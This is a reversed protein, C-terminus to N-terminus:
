GNLLSATQWCRTAFPMQSSILALAQQYLNLLRYFHWRGIGAAETDVAMTGAVLSGVMTDVALSDAMTDTTVALCGVMHIVGIDEPYEESTTVLIVTDVTSSAEGNAPNAGWQVERMIADSVVAKGAKALPKGRGNVVTLDARM